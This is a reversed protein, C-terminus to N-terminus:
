KLTLADLSHRTSDFRRTVGGFGGGLILIKTKNSM